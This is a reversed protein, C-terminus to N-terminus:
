IFIHQLPFGKPLQLASEDGRYGRCLNRYNLMRSVLQDLLACAVSYNQPESMTLASTNLGLGQLTKSYNVWVADILNLERAHNTIM